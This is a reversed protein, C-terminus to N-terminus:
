LECGFFASLKQRLTEKLCHRRCRFSNRHRQLLVKDKQRNKSRAASCASFYEPYSEGKACLNAVHMPRLNIAAEAAGEPLGAARLRSAPCVRDIGWGYESESDNFDRRRIWAGCPDLRWEAAGDDRPDPKTTEAAAKQWIRDIQEPTFNM